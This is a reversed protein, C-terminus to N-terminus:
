SRHMFCIDMDATFIKVQAARKYHLIPYHNSQLLLLLLLLLLKKICSEMKQRSLFRLLSFPQLRLYLKRHIERPTLSVLNMNM